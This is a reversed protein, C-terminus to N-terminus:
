RSCRSARELARVAEWTLIAAADLEFQDMKPRMLPAMLQGAIRLRQEHTWRPTSGGHSTIAPQHPSM